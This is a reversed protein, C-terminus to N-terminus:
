RNRFSGLLKFPNALQTGFAQNPCASARRYVGTIARTRQFLSRLGAHRPRDRKSSGARKPRAASKCQGAGLLNGPHTIYNECATWIRLVTV